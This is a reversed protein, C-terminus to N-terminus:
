LLNLILDNLKLFLKLCLKGILVYEILLVCANNCVFFIGRTIYLLPIEDNQSFKNV